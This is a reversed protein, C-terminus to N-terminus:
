GSGHSISQWVGNLDSSYPFTGVIADVDLPDTEVGPYRLFETHGDMFLVNGGGPVHNFHIVGPAYTPHQGPTYSGSIQGAVVDWMVPITSQAKASAAPNNIDTIMFREIGERFRRLATNPLGDSGHGGNGFQAHNPIRGGPTLDGDPPPTYGYSGVPPFCATGMTTMGVGPTVSQYSSLASEISAVGMWTKVVYGPYMYSRPASALYYLCNSAYQGLPAPLAAEELVKEWLDMPDGEPLRTRGLADLVHPDSPCLAIAYDTWYEPYLSRADPTLWHSLGSNRPFHEGPAENAYMKFIVGWQKLNNQCSSRRAAERARALAPLLIAALIGIIAIVVLLEILTFGKKM